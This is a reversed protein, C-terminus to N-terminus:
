DWKLKFWAYEEEREFIIEYHEKMGGWKGNERILNVECRNEEKFLANLYYSLVRTKHKTNYRKQYENM